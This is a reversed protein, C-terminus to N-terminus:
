PILNKPIPLIILSNEEPLQNKGNGIQKAPPSCKIWLSNFVKTIFNEKQLNLEPYLEMIANKHSGNYYHIFRNGGAAQIDRWPFSYWKDADLPSFQNSNAIQDYFERRKKPDKWDERRTTFKERILKLEPYLKVL